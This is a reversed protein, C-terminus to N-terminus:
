AESHSFLKQAPAIAKFKHIWAGEPGTGILYGEDTGPKIVLNPSNMYKGQDRDPVVINAIPIGYHNLVVARGGWMMAQYLNGASDVKNSDVVANGINTYVAQISFGGPKVFGEKTMSIRLVRNRVSEGVWLM